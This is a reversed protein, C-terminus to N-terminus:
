IKSDPSEPLQLEESASGQDVTYLKLMFRMSVLTELLEELVEQMDMAASTNIM